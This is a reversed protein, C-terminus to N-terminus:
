CPATGRFALRDQYRLVLEGGPCALTVTSGETWRDDGIATGDPTTVNELMLPGVRSFTLRADLRDDGTVNMALELLPAGPAAQCTTFRRAILSGNFRLDFRVEDDVPCTAVLTTNPTWADPPATLSSSANLPAPTGNWSANLRHTEFPADSANGLTIRWGDQAQDGDVDLREFTTPADLGPEFLQCGRVLLSPLSRGGWTLNLREADPDCPTYVRSGNTLQGEAEDSKLPGEYLRVARDGLQASLERAHVPGGSVLALEVADRRGDGDGDVVTSSFFPPVRPPPVGCEEVLVRKLEGHVLIRFEHVGDPCAVLRSQGPRWATGNGGEVEVPEGDREVVLAQSPIPARAALLTLNLTDVLGDGDTDVRASRFGFGGGDDGDGPADVPGACGAAVLALAALLARHVLWPSSAQRNLEECATAQPRRRRSAGGRIRSM